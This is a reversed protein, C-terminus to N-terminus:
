SSPSPSPSRDSDNNASGTPTAAYSASTRSGPTPANLPWRLGLTLPKKTKTEGKRKKKACVIDTIGLSQCRETTLNSDYGRDLHLTEIDALLGRAAVAQLTPELLISDNRNAGAIVWGIPIGFLDTAVSWEWGIKARDTPNPGTGEGGCPAKHPQRRRRGRVPGPRHDQRLRCHSRRRTQRVGRRGAM